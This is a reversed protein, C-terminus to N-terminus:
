NLKKNYIFIIFSLCWPIWLCLLITALDHSLFHAGRFQQTLGYLVGLILGPLLYKLQPKNFLSKAFYLALFGYGASAHGAPFCHGIRHEYDFLTSFTQFERSGGYIKLNWPCPLTTISKLYKILLVSILVAVFLFTLEFIKEKYIISKSQSYSKLLDLIRILIAIAIAGVFLVGGKHFFKELWFNNQLKFGDSFSYIWSMLSSDIGIDHCIIVSIALLLFIILMKYHSFKTMIAM